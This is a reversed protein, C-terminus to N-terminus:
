SCLSRYALPLCDGDSRNMVNPTSNILWAETTLRRFYNNEVKLIQSNSWDIIHDFQMVHECLASQEPRQFKIARKHEALRTKLDRKTQGIYVHECDSCPVLYILGTKEEPTLPDKPSPLARGITRVPRMAVMVGAENLVRRIKESTGQVYPISTFSTFQREANRKRHVPFFTSRNPYGNLQLISRVDNLENQKQGKDSIHTNVRHVM